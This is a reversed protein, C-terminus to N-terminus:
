QNSRTSVRSPYQAPPGRQQGRIGYLLAFTLSFDPTERMRAAVPAEAARAFLTFDLPPDTRRRPTHHLSRSSRPSSRRLSHGAVTTAQGRAM